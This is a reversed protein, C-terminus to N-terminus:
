KKVWFFSPTPYDGSTLYWQTINHGEVYAMVAPIIGAAHLHIFDHGSVIGGIRVKRSWGIIDMMVNDFDHAADIYVFDLSNDPIDVLADMSAKRIFHVAVGKYQSLVAVARRYIRDQREQNPRGGPFPAWVDICYLTVGPIKDLISQSFGGWQVGIEAGVKFGLENFIEPLNERTSLSWGTYPLVENWKIRLRSRIHADADM